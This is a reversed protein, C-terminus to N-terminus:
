FTTTQGWELTSGGYVLTGLGEPGSIGWFDGFPRGPGGPGSHWVLTAFTGFSGFFLWFSTLILTWQELVKEVSRAPLGRFVKQLGKPSKPAWPHSSEQILSNGNYSQSSELVGSSRSWFVKPLIPNDSAWRLRLKGSLKSLAPFSNWSKGHRLRCFPIAFFRFLQRLIDRFTKYSKHRTHRKHWHFFSVSVFFWLVDWTTTFYRLTDCFIAAGKKATGKRGDRKTKASLARYKWRQTKLSLPQYGSLWFPGQFSLFDFPEGLRENANSIYHM